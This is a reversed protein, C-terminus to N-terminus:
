KLDKITYRKTRISILRSLEKKLIKKDVTMDLNRALVLMNKKSFTKPKTKFVMILMMGSLLEPKTRYKKVNKIGWKRALKDLSHRNMKLFQMRVTKSKSKRGGGQQVGFFNNITSSVTSAAENIGSMLTDAVGANFVDFSNDIQKSQNNIQMDLSNLQKQVTTLNKYQSEIERDSQTKNKKIQMEQIRLQALQENKSILEAELRKMEEKDESNPLMNSTLNILKQEQEDVNTKTKYLKEAIEKIQKKDSELTEKEARLKELDLNTQQNTNGLERLNRLSEQLAEKSKNVRSDLDKNSKVINSNLDTFQQKIQALTDKNETIFIPPPPLPLTKVATNTPALPQSPYKLVTYKSPIHSPESHKPFSWKLPNKQFKLKQNSEKLERELQTIRTELPNGLFTGTMNGPQKRGRIANYDRQKNLNALTQINSSM